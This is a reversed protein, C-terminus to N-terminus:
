LGRRLKLGELEALRRVNTQINSYYDERNKWPQAEICSDVRTKGALQLAETKKEAFYFIIDAVIMLQEELGMAGFLSPDDLYPQVSETNM